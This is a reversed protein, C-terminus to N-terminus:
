STVKKSIGLKDLEETNLERISVLGTSGTVNILFTKGSTGQLYLEFNEATGDPYFVVYQVDSDSTSLRQYTSTGYTSYANMLAIEVGEPLEKPVGLIGGTRSAINQETESYQTSSNQTTNTGNLDTGPLSNSSSNTQTGTSNTQNMYNIIDSVTGLSSGGIYEELTLWYSSNSRDFVVAYNTRESIASNKAFEMLNRISRSASRLKTSEAFNKMLPTAATTLMVIIFMVIAVEILTFGERPLKKNHILLVSTM